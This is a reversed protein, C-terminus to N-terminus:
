PWFFGSETRWFQEDLHYHDDRVSESPGSCMAALARLGRRIGLIEVEGRANLVFNPGPM